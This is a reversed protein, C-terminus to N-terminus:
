KLRDEWFFGLILTFKFKKGRMQFEVRYSYYRVNLPSFSSMVITKIFSKVRQDFNRTATHTHKRIFEHATTSTSLFEGISVGNILAEEQGAKYTFTINEDKLM